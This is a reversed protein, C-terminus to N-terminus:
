DSDMRKSKKEKKDKKEKKKKDKKHKRKDKKKKKDKLLSTNQTFQMRLKEIENQVEKSQIIKELRHHIILSNLIYSKSTKTTIM